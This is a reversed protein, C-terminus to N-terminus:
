SVARATVIELADTLRKMVDDMEIHVTAPKDRSVVLRLHPTNAQPRVVPPAPPPLVDPPPATECVFESGVLREFAIPNGLLPTTDGLARSFGIFRTARAGGFTLPALVTEIEVMGREGCSAFSSLCVPQSTALSQKLLLALTNRSQPEWCSLFNTGKLEVGYRDCHSTGALRYLPRSVDSADLIFVYPLIRKIARPDVDTQDPVHRGKRLRSWYGVLLHSNRDKM